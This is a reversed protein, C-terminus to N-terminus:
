RRASIPHGNGCIGNRLNRRACSFIQSEICSADVAHNNTPATLTFRIQAVSNVGNGASQSKPQEALPYRGAVGEGGKTVGNIPCGEKQQQRVLM